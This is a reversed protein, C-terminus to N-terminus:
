TSPKILEWVRDVEDRLDDLDGSNDIVLDARSLWDHRRPQATLRQSIEVTDLGRESLRQRRLAEPADVVIVGVTDAYLKRPVSIEIMVVESTSNVVRKGIEESILPHLIGELVELDTPSGFVIRGLTRRDIEDDAVIEPWREAVAVYAAGGPELLQHGIKDADIVEAGIEEFFQATTSKGTGIGGTLIWVSHQESM